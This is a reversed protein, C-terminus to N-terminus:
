LVLVGHHTTSSRKSTSKPTPPTPISEFIPPRTRHICDRSNFDPQFACFSLPTHPILRFLLFLRHELSEKSPSSSPQSPNPRHRPTSTAPM